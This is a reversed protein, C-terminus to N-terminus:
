CLALAFLLSQVVPDAAVHAEFGIMNLTGHSRLFSDEYADDLFRLRFEVCPLRPYFAMQPM